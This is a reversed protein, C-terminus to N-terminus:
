RALGDRRSDACGLLLPATLAAALEPRVLLWEHSNQEEREIVEVTRFSKELGARLGEASPYFEDGHGYVVAAPVEVPVLDQYWRALSGYDYARLGGILRFHRIPRRLWNAWFRGGSDLLVQRARAGDGALGVAMKTNMWASRAMFFVSATRSPQVPNIAVIARPGLPGKAMTLSVAAGTSHGIVPAGAALMGEQMLREITRHALRMCSWFHVPGRQLGGNAFLFPALIRYGEAAVAGLFDRYDQPPRGYGHLFVLDQLHAGPADAAPDLIMVPVNEGAVLIDVSEIRTPHSAPYGMSHRYWWKRWREATRSKCGEERPLRRGSGFGRVALVAIGAQGLM